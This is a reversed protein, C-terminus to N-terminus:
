DIDRLRREPVRMASLLFDQVSHNSYRILHGLKYYIPGERRKRMGSLSKLSIGLMDSVQKATLHTDPVKEGEPESLVDSPTLADLPTELDNTM